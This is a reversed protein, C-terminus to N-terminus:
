KGCNKDKGWKKRTLEELEKLFSKYEKKDSLEGNLCAIWKLLVDTNTELATLRNTINLLLNVLYIGIVVAAGLGGILIEILEM